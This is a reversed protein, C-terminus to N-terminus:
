YIPSRFQILKSWCLSLSDQINLKFQEMYQLNHYNQPKVCQMNADMNSYVSLMNAKRTNWAFILRTLVRLDYREGGVLDLKLREVEGLGCAQPEFSLNVYTHTCLQPWSHINSSPILICSITCQLIKRGNNICLPLFYQALYQTNM